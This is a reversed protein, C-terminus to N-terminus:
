STNALEVVRRIMRQVQDSPKWEAYRQAFRGAAQAYKPEHLLNMLKVAVEGPRRMRASLGAGM